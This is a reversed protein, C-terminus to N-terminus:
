LSSGSVFATVFIEGASRVTFELKESDRSPCVIADTRDSAFDIASTYTPVFFSVSM